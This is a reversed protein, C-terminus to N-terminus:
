HLRFTPTGGLDDPDPSDGKTTESRTRGAVLSHTSRFRLLARDLPGARENENSFIGRLANVILRWCRQPIAGVSDSYRVPRSLWFLASNGTTAASMKATSQAHYTQSSSACFGHLPMKGYLQRCQNPKSLWKALSAQKNAAYCEKFAM